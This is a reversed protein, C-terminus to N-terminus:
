KLYSENEKEKNHYETIKKALETIAYVEPDYNTLTAGYMGNNPPLIKAIDLIANEMEKPNIMKGKEM